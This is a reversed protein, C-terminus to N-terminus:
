GSRAGGDSRRDSRRGPTVVVEDVVEALPRTADVLTAGLDRYRDAVTQNHMLSAALEEPHKGFSNTTRTALRDRLTADDIVLCVIRDAYRYADLENEASGCLFTVSSTAEAGAALAQVRDLDVEWGFDELWGPPVPDPPDAIV